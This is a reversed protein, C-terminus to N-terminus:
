RRHRRMERERRRCARDTVRAMPAFVALNVSASFADESQRPASAVIARWRAMERDIFKRWAYPSQTHSRYERDLSRAWWTGVAAM